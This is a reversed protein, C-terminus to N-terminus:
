LVLKLNKLQDSYNSLLSDKENIENILNINKRKYSETESKADSVMKNAESFLQTSLEDVEKSLNKVELDSANKLNSLKVNESKLETNEKSILQHQKLLFQYDNQLNSLSLNKKRENEFKKTVLFLQEELESQKGIATILQASLDGVKASIRKEEENDM